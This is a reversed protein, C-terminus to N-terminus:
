TAFGFDIIKTDLNPSNMDVLINDMKMDRHTINLNHIFQM